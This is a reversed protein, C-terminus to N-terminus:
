PKTYDSETIKRNNLKGNYLYEPNQYDTLLSCLICLSKVIM